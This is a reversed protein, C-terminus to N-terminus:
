AIAGSGDLDCTTGPTQPGGWAGLLALLDPVDVAGSQPAAQCDWPCAQFEYAGMDVIPPTGNGTDPTGLDDVFRPNGDLDTTVNFPVATNDAADICPSDRSLRYNGNLPDVFLPDADINGIGPWGGQVDSYRVKAAPEADAIENPSNGWLICNTVTPSSNVNFMAGGSGSCCGVSNGTFTCNTVTPSSDVNYMGGGFGFFFLSVASNGSFTCNTVTPSSASNYMGGGNAATNGSFICNTVTPSSASNLMGGGNTCSSGSRTITFGELVTNPGEGSDCTVVSGSGQGDITTVEPGGSSRLTVAKGLFNFTEFYTGSAVIIEDGDVANDIATQIACYPDGETGSGLNFTGDGQNLLVSVDGSSQNAVALDPGNVGDLDGIAVSFVQDRAPYRVPCNDDDVFIVAPRSATSGMLPMAMAIVVTAVTAAVLLSQRCLSM